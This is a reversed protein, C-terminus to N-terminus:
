ESEKKSIASIKLFKNLLANYLFALIIPVVLFALYLLISSGFFDNVNFQNIYTKKFSFEEITTKIFWAAVSCIMTFLVIKKVPFNENNM